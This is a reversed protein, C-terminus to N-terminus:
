PTSDGLNPVFHRSSTAPRRRRRGLRRDLAVAGWAAVVLAALGMAAVAALQAGRTAQVRGIDLTLPVVAVSLYSDPQSVLASQLAHASALIRDVVLTQQQQVWAKTPGVIQVDIEAHTYSAYWQNGDSPVDVLVGQRLGAGYYPADGSSYAVPSSGSNVDAAVARAFTIISTDGIGNSASLSSAAPLMFTVVTKTTYVGGDRVFAVLLLAAVGIVVVAVYWRRRMATLVERITM